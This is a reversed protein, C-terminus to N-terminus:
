NAHVEETISSGNSSSAFGPSPLATGERTSCCGNMSPPICTRVRDPEDRRNRRFSTLLVPFFRLDILSLWEAHDRAIGVQWSIADPPGASGGMEFRGAPSGKSIPAPM